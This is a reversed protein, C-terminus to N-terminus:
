SPPSRFVLFRQLVYSLAAIIPIAYIGGHYATAGLQVSIAVTSIHTGYIVSWSVLFKLFANISMNGFVLSGQTWYSIGIGIIISGLSALPYALGFVLLAAYVAYGFATNAGGVVLFRVWRHQSWITAIRNLVINGAIM